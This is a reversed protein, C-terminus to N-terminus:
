PRAEAVACTARNSRRKAVLLGGGGASLLAAAEAVSPTGVHRAVAESPTPVPVARLAQASYLEVPWARRATAARLGPEDAKLDITALARVPPHGLEALATDILALLEEASCGRSCGVGVVVTV